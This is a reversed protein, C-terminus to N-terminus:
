CAIAQAKAKLKESTSYLTEINVNGFKEDNFSKGDAGEDEPNPKLGKECAKAARKVCEESTNHEYALRIKVARIFVPMWCGTALPYSYALGWLTTQSLCYMCGCFGIGLLFTWVFVDAVATLDDLRM